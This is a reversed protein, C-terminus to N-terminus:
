IRDTTSSPLSSAELEINFRDKLIQYGVWDDPLPGVETQTANYWMDIKTPGSATSEKAGQAFALTSMILLLISIVILRKKM